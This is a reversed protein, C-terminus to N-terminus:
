SELALKIKMLKPVVDKIELREEPVEECCRMGIEIISLIVDRTVKVDRGEEVSLLGVDVVELVDDALSANIWERLTLEGSFMEDTPKKRAIIELLMIGYSFVDGKITVKGAYGYEGDNAEANSNEEQQWLKTNVAAPAIYGLTGLTRTQTADKALGFDGVHAVMDEDLLINSPKLDCHVVLESQGHHLYELASAINILMSVRQLLSLCYNHSYLWKELSGNSMYQLVLARVDPSSCSTIVKVLNRHRITRWVKCEADFSKSAGEMHLNLVKVAVTAGDALIGKYVSGFSGAGLFNSQCFDNTALRLEHYPIMRHEVTTVREVSTPIGSNRKQNKTLIICILAILIVTSAVAPLIYKLLRHAMRPTKCPSVGFDPRGCLAMNGLFSNAIFNVFPGDYPIRGSLQNFSFNLHKLYKLRELSKPISGSLNNNSLDLFELGKLDGFSQPIPGIFLNNSLNLSNLSQFAGIISLINGTIHNWSLDLMQLANLKKMSPPLYGSLSNLSFNIFLLNELNWFNVPISSTLRNSSLFVIKLRSLNGICDPILGSIKNNELSIVGLNRMVCIDEPIFGEINNNGLYLRQLMELGGMASPITGSM